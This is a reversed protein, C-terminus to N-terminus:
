KKQGGHQMYHQLHEPIESSKSAKFSDAGEQKLYEICKELDYGAFLNEPNRIEQKIKECDEVATECEKVKKLADQINKNNTCSGLAGRAAALETNATALRDKYDNMRANYLKNGPKSLTGFGTYSDAKQSFETAKKGILPMLARFYKCEIALIREKGNHWGRIYPINGSRKTACLEELAPFIEKVTKGEHAANQLATFIATYMRNIKRGKTEKVNIDSM